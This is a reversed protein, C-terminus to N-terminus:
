VYRRRGKIEEVQRLIENGMLDEYRKL